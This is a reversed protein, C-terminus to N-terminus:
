ASEEAVVQGARLIVHEIHVEVSYGEPYVTIGKPVVERTVPLDILPKM